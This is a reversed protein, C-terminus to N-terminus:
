AQFEIQSLVTEMTQLGSKPCDGGREFFDTTVKTPLKNM